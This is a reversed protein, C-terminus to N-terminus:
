TGLCEWVREKWESTCLFYFLIFPFKHNVEEKKRKNECTKVSYKIM